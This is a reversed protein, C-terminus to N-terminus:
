TLMSFRFTSDHVNSDEPLKSRPKEQVISSIHFKSDIKNLRSSEVHDYNAKISTLKEIEADLQNLEHQLRRITENNREKENLRAEEEQDYLEQLSTLHSNVM